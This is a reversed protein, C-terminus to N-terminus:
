KFGFMERADRQGERSNCHLDWYKGTGDGKKWMIGNRLVYHKNTHVEDEIKQNISAIEVIINMAKTITVGEKIDIKIKM